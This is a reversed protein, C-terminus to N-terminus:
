PTRPFNKDAFEQVWPLDPRDSQGWYRGSRSRPSNTVRDNLLVRPGEISASWYIWRGANNRRYRVTITDPIFRTFVGKLMHGYNHIERTTVPATVTIESAPPCATMTSM